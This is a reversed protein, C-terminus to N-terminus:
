SSFCSPLAERRWDWSPVHLNSSLKRGEVRTGLIAVSTGGIDIKPDWIHKPLYAFECILGPIILLLWVQIKIKKVLYRETRMHLACINLVGGGMTSLIWALAGPETVDTCICSTRRHWPGKWKDKIKLFMTANEFYKVSSFEFGCEAKLRNSWLECCLLSSPFELLIM